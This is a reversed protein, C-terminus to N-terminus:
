DEVELEGKPAGERYKSLHEVAEELLDKSKKMRKKGAGCQPCKKLASFKKKGSRFRQNQQAGGFETQSTNEKEEDFEYNCVKCRYIAM